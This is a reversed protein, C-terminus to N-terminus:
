VASFPGTGWVGIMFRAPKTERDCMVVDGALLGVHAYSGDSITLYFTPQLDLLNASDSMRGGGKSDLLVEAHSIRDTDLLVYRGHLRLKAGISLSLVNASVVVERGHVVSILVALGPLRALRSVTAYGTWCLIVCSRATM